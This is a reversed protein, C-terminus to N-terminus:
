KSWKQLISFELILTNGKTTQHLGRVTNECSLHCALQVSCSAEKRLANAGNVLSFEWSRSRLSISNIGDCQCCRFKPPVCEFGLLRYLEGKGALVNLKTLEPHHLFVALLMPSRKMGGLACSGPACKFKVPWLNSMYKSVCEGSHKLPFVWIFNVNLDNLRSYHM